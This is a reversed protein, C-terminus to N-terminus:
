NADIRRRRSFVERLGLSLVRSNQCRRSFYQWDTQEVVQFLTAIPIRNFRKQRHNRCAQHIVPKAAITSLDVSEDEGSRASRLEVLAAQRNNFYRENADGYDSSKM